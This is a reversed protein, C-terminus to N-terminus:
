RITRDNFEGNIYRQMLRFRQIKGSSTKPIENSKILVLEDVTIGLNRRLLGKLRSYLEPARQDSVGALFAVVKDNGRERSTVGGFCIKGYGIEELSCAMAELDNAFYNRGNKFIIDKQRGSIYLNGNFFFGIDGTRLWGDSFAAATAEPKKYYGKTIGGGRLQIQGAIGDEVPNDGDDTIRIEVDNLAVGVGSLIRAEPDAPDVRVVLKERDLKAAHFAHVVSPKRLPTFSIALTAEAMGYVPMMAEPRFGHPVLAQVFEDMIAVSIPEAGNLLAKMTRFDWRPTSKLRKLYRLVLALAFNTGGSIAIEQKGMLELWLDPKMIFDITEIHYHCLSCYIPTIHYGIFGMDHYLPMWNGIRDPHFADLGVRIADMNVMLNSHTLMIGKPDGTSGSSFQIFALDESNLLPDPYGGSCDLHNRQIIKVGPLNGSDGVLQSMFILPENLQRYVAELKVVSPNYGSFTVPPQLIAPVVGLLFSGWLLEITERNQSTAIIINDGKKLGLNSLGAAILKAEGLLAKYLQHTIGGNEDMYGIFLDNPDAAARTLLDPLTLDPQYYPNTEPM